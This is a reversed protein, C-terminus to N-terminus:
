PPTLCAGLDELGQPAQGGAFVAECVTGEPCSPQDTDCDDTCCAAGAACGPVRGPPACFNKETCEGFPCPSGYGNEEPPPYWCTFTGGASMPFCGPCNSDVPRCGYRVRAPM